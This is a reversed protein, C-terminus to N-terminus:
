QLVNVNSFYACPSHYVYAVYISEDKKAICPQTRDRYLKKCPIPTFTFFM